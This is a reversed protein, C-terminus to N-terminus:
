LGVIVEPDTILDVGFQGKTVEATGTVEGTSEDVRNVTGSFLGEIRQAGSSQVTVTGSVFEWRETAESGWGTLGRNIVGLVCNEEPGEESDCDPDFPYEGVDASPLSLHVVDGAGNEGVDAAVIHGGALYGASQAWAPDGSTSDVSLRGVAYFPESWGSIEMLLGSGPQMPPDTIIAANSDTDLCAALAISLIVLVSIRRSNELM